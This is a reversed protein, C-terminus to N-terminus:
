RTARSQRAEHTATAHKSVSTRACRRELVRALLPRPDGRAGLGVHGRPPNPPIEGAAIAYLAAKDDHGREVWIQGSVVGRSWAAAAHKTM